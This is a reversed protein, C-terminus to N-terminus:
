KPINGVTMYVPYAMEGGVFQTLQTKDTSILVPAVTGGPNVKNVHSQFLKNDFHNYLCSHLYNGPACAVMAWDV